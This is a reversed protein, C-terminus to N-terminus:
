RRASAEGAGACRAKGGAAASLVTLRLSGAALEEVLKEDASLRREARALMERVKSPNPSGVVNKAKVSAVPDLPPTVEAMYVGLEEAISGAAEELSKGERLQKAMLGHIERYPKLLRVSFSEAVDTASTPYRKLDEMMRDRSVELKSVLDRLVQLAKSTGEILKWCHKTAEQLDLNYGSPTGKIVALMSVLHGVAEGGWARVVEMTVLNKKHPMMSSTALHEPPAEVYSYAPSAWTILDEAVRSLYVAVDTVVHAPLTMFERSSTAALTNLVIDRFGALEALRRRDIEVTTGTCACAGLPSRDVIDYTKILMDAYTALVEEIHLLYHAFTTPQAPQAHTFSPMLADATREAVQLLTRRLANLERLLKVLMRKLKLRIAAAVHDNRSKALGVWGADRGLKEALYLELAEHVDEAEYGFLPSPDKVLRLLENTIREGPGEPIFGREVLHRVHALLLEVVERAIVRDEDMSSTYEVISRPAEGLLEKRYMPSM